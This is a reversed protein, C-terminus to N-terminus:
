LDTQGNASLTKKKHHIHINSPIKHPTPHSTPHTTAAAAAPFGACGHRQKATPSPTLVPRTLSLLLFFAASNQPSPFCVKMQNDYQTTSVAHRFM